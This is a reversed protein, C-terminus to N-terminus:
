GGGMSMNKLERIVEESRNEVLESGKLAIRVVIAIVIAAVLVAFAIMYAYEIAAQARRIM